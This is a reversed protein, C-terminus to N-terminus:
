QGLAPLDDIRIAATHEVIWVHLIQHARARRHHQDGLVPLHAEHADRLLLVLAPERRRPELRRRDRGHADRVRRVDDIQRAHLQLLQRPQCRQDPALAHAHHVKQAAQSRAHLEVAGTHQAGVHRIAWKRERNAGVALVQRREQRLQAPQKRVRM